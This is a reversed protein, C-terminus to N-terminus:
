LIKDARESGQKAVPVRYFPFSRTKSRMCVRRDVMGPENRRDKAGSCAWWKSLDHSDRVVM